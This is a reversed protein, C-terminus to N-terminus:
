PAFFPRCAPKKSIEAHGLHPKIRLHNKHHKAHSSELVELGSPVPSVGTSRPVSSPAQFTSSSNSPPQQTQQSQQSQQLTASYLNIDPYNMVSSKVEASPQFLYTYPQSTDNQISPDQFVMSQPGSNQASLPYVLNFNQSEILSPNLSSNSSQFVPHFQQHAQIPSPEPYISSPPVSTNSVSQNLTNAGYFQVPNYTQFIGGPMSPSSRQSPGPTNSIISNTSPSQPQQGQLQQIQQLSIEPLSYQPFSISDPPDLPPGYQNTNPTFQRM